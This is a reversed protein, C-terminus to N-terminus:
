FIGDEQRLRERRANAAETAEAQQRALISPWAEEFSAESRGNLTWLARQYDKERELAAAESAALRAENDAREAERAAEQRQQREDAEQLFRRVGPDNAIERRQEERQQELGRRQDDLAHRRRAEEANRRAVEAHLNQQQHQMFNDNM